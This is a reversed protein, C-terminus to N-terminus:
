LNEQRRWDKKGGWGKELWGTKWNELWKWKKPGGELWGTKWNELWMYEKAGGGKWDVPKGTKWDISSFYFISFFVPFRSKKQRDLGTKGYKRNAVPFSSSQNVPHPPCLLSLWQFVRMEKFGGKWDVLRGTKWDCTNRQGGGKWDVPKGTKWDISFCYLILFFVPFRVPGTLFIGTEPKKKWIKIKRWKVPFGASRNVPLPPPLSTFPM